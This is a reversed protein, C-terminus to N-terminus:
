SLRTKRATLSSGSSRFHDQRITSRHILQYLIPFAINMAMWSWLLSQIDFGSAGFAWFVTFKILLCLGYVLNFSLWLIMFSQGMLFRRQSIIFRQLLIFIFANLGLPALTISDILLGCLFVFLPNLARPNFISWYYIAIMFFPLHLALSNIQFPGLIELLLLLSAVVSPLLGACFAIIKSGIHNETDM